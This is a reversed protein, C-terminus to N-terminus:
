NDGGMSVLSVRKGIRRGENWMAMGFTQAKTVHGTQSPDFNPEGEFQATVTGDPNDELTITIKAM